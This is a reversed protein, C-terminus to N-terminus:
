NTRSNTLESILEKLWLSEQAAASLAIYEAEATSLAVRARRNRVGGHYLEVKLKFIYGSTSKRDNIDGGMRTDLSSVRVNTPTTYESIQQEDSTESCELSFIYM